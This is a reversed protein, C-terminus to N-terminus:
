GSSSASLGVGARAVTARGVEVVDEADVDQLKFRDVGIHTQKYSGNSPLGDTQYTFIGTLCFLVDSLHSYYNPYTHTVANILMSHHM